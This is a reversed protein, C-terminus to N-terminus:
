SDLQEWRVLRDDTDYDFLLNGFERAVARQTFQLNERWVHRGTPPDWVGATGTDTGVIRYLGIHSLTAHVEEKSLGPVLQGSLWQRVDSWSPAVGLREAVDRLVAEDEVRERAIGEALVVCTALGLFVLVSAAVRAARVMFQGPIIPNM